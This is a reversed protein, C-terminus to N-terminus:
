MLRVIEQLLDADALPSHAGLRPHAAMAIATLCLSTHKQLADKYKTKLIEDTTMSLVTDLICVDCGFWCKTGPSNMYQVGRNNDGITVCIIESLGPPICFSIYTDHTISWAGDFNGGRKLITQELLAIQSCLRTRKLQFYLTGQKWTMRREISSLPTQRRRDIEEQVFKDVFPLLNGYAVSPDFKLSTAFM